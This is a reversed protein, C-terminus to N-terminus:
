QALMRMIVRFQSRKASHSLVTIEKRNNVGVKLDIAAEFTLEPLDCTQRTAEDELADLGSRM